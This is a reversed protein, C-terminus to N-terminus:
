LSLRKKVEGALATLEDKVPYSWSELTAGLPRAIGDAILGEAFRAPKTRRHGPLPLIYIPKGTACAESMMNVSDNTVVIHDALALLGFYPNDGTFDYVYAKRDGEAFGFSQKLMTFNRKGTRRSATILLSGPVQKLAAVVEAMRSKTLDYKNTSGGILAAVQPRAYEAFRAAFKEKAEALLAPTIRHLAFRTKIVNPGSIKDHELAVVLDFADAPTRPDQINIFKTPIGAKQALFRMGMAILAGRRGCSIILDPWPLVLSDSRKRDFAYPMIMHKFGAAYIANPQWGFMRTLVVKKMQPSVGIAQALAQVQAVMGASGDTLGWVKQEM